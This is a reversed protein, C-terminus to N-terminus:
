VAKSQCYKNYVELLENYMVETSIGSSWSYIQENNLYYIMLNTYEKKTMGMNYLDSLMTDIAIAKRKQELERQERQQQKYNYRDIYGKLKYYRNEQDLSVPLSSIYDFYEKMNEISM